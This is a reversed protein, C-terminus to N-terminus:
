RQSSSSLSKNKEDQARRRYSRNRNHEKEAQLAADKEVNRIKFETKAKWSHFDSPKGDYVFYGNKQEVEAHTGAKYRLTALVM